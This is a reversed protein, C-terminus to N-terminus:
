LLELNVQEFLVAPLPLTPVGRGAWCLLSHVTFIAPEPNLQGYKFGVAEGALWGGAEAEESRHAWRGGRLNRPHPPTPLHPFVSLAPSNDAACCHEALGTTRLTLIQSRLGGGETQPPISACVDNGESEWWIRVLIQKWKSPTNYCLLVCQPSM